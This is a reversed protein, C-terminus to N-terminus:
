LINKIGFLKDVTYDAIIEPNLEGYHNYWLTKIGFEIGGSIDATLSDGIMIVEEKKVM